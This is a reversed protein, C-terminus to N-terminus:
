RRETGPTESIRIRSRAPEKSRVCLVVRRASSVAALVCSATMIGRNLPQAMGSVAMGLCFIGPALFVATGYCRGVPDFVWGSEAPRASHLKSSTVMFELFKLATVGTFWLPAIGAINLVALSAMVFFLDFVVDLYAGLRTCAGLARAAKGDLIDTLCIAVFVAMAAVPEGTLIYRVFCLTLVPRMSTILNPIHGRIRKRM